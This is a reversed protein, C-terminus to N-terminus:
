LTTADSLAVTDLTEGATTKVTPAATVINGVEPGDPVITVAVPLPKVSVAPRVTVIVIPPTGATFM